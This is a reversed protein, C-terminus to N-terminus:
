PVIPPHGLRFPLVHCLAILPLDGDHVARRRPDAPRDRLPDDGFTTDDRRAVDGGVTQPRQLRFQTVRDPREDPIDRDFGVGLGEHGEGDVAEAADIDREM